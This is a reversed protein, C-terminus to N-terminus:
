SNNGKEEWVAKVCSDGKQTAVSFLKWSYSESTLVPSNCIYWPRYYAAKSPLFLAWYNSLLTGRQLRQDEHLSNDAVIGAHRVM